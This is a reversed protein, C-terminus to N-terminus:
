HSGDRWHHFLIQEKSKPHHEPRHRSVRLGRCRDKRDLRNMQRSVMSRWVGQIDFRRIVPHMQIQSKASDCGRDDIFWEIMVEVRLSLQIFVVKELVVAITAGRLIANELLIRLFEHKFELKRQV